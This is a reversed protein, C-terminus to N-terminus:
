SETLEYSVEVGASVLMPEPHLNAEDGFELAEEVIGDFGPDADVTRVDLVGAVALGEAAALREAKERSREMAATLAENTLTDHSEPTLQFQVNQVEAGADAVDVVVTEATEPACDVHLKETAQFASETTPEFMSESAQVQINVTRVGDLPRDQLRDRLGASQSRADIRAESASQGDGRARVEITAADPAREVTEIASTTIERQNM